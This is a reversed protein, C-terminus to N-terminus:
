CRRDRHRSGGRRLQPLRVVSVTPTPWQVRSATATSRIRDVVTRSSLFMSRWHNPFGGRGRAAVMEISTIGGPVGGM